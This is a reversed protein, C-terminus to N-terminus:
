PAPATAASPALERCAYARDALRAGRHLGDLDGILLGSFQRRVTSGPSWRPRHAFARRSSSGPVSRAVACRTCCSKFSEGRSRCRQRGLRTREFGASRAAGSLEFRELYRTMGDLKQAGVSSALDGLDSLLKPALERTEQNAVQITEVATRARRGHNRRGRAQRLRSRRGRRGSGAPHRAPDQPSRAGPWRM